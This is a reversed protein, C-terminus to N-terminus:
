TQRDGKNERYTERRYKKEKGKGERQRKSM